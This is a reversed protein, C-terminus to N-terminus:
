QQDIAQHRLCLTKRIKLNLFQKSTNAIPKERTFLHHKKFFAYDSNCCIQLIFRSTSKSLNLRGYHRKFKNKNLFIIKKNLDEPRLTQTSNLAM